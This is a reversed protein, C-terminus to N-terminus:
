ELVKEMITVQEQRFHTVERRSWGLRAYFAEREPTFLYLRSIDLDWALDEAAQMLASGIGEERRDARVYVASLWPQLNPRIPMERQRLSATGLPQDGQVAVLTLPLRDRNLHTQM